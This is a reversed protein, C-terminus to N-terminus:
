TGRAEVLRRLDAVSRIDAVEDVRFRMQFEEEAALVIHMTAVSDWAPHSQMSLDDTITLSPDDFVGRLIRQLRFLPSAKGERPSRPEQTQLRAPNGFVTQGDPVDRVAFSAAGVTARRGVRCRPAIVANSNVTAGEALHCGGSIRGGPQVTTFNELISDHGISCHYNILAHHGVRVNPSLISGAGVYTGLGVVTGPAVMASSDIVAVPQWGLGLLRGVVNARQAGNGIACIFGPPSPLAPAADEPSGLVPLDAWRGGAKSTDDDCFGIIEHRATISTASRAAWAVETGFGGAGVIVLPTREDM